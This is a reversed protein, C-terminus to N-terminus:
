NGTGLDTATRTQLPRHPSIIEEDRKDLAALGFREFRLWKANKFRKKNLVTIHFPHPSMEIKHALNTLASSAM